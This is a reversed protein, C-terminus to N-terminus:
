IKRLIANLIAEETTSSIDMLTTQQVVKSVSSDSKPDILLGLQSTGMAKNRVRIQDGYVQLDDGVTLKHNM